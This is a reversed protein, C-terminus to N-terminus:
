VVAGEIVLTVTGHEIGTPIAQVGAEAAWKVVTGPHATTACDIDSVPAGLLSNRVAGGVVRVEEGDRNLLAFVAQLEPMRRWNFARDGDTLFFRDDM